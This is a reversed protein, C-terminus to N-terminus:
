MIDEANIRGFIDNVRADILQTVGESDSFEARRVTYLESSEKTTTDDECLKSEEEAM